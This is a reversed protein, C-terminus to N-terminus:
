KQFGKLWAIAETESSFIRTTLRTQQVQLFFNGILTSIRSEVLLACAVSATAAEPGGYYSRVDRTQSKIPRLDVLLPVAKGFAKSLTIRADINEIADAFSEEAGQKYVSRGVGSADIWHSATRTHIVQADM